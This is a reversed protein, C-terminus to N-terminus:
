KMSRIKAERVTNFLSSSCGSDFMPYFWGEEAEVIEDHKECLNEETLFVCRHNKADWKGYM